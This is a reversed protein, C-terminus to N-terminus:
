YVSGFMFSKSIQTGIRQFLDIHLGVDNVNLPQDGPITQYLVTQTIHTGLKFTLHAVDNLNFSTIYYSSCIIYM